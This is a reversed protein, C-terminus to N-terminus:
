GHLSALFEREPVYAANQHLGADCIWPHAEMGGKQKLRRSLVAAEYMCLVVCPFRRALSTVRAELELQDNECSGPLEKRGRGLNGLLRIARAGQRQATQFSMEIEALTDAVLLHRTLLTLRGSEVLRPAEYGARELLQVVRANAEEHGIMVCLDNDELGLQLFRVCREFEDATEWFYVVHSGLPIEDDTVGFPITNPEAAHQALKQRLRRSFGAPVDFVVGGAILRVVNRTGDLIATCHDCQRFHEEMRQQMEPDVIGDVYNSIERRVEVCRVDVSAM